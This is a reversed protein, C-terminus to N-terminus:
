PPPRWARVQAVPGEGGSGGAARGQFRPWGLGTRGSWSFFVGDRESRGTRTLGPFLGGARPYRGRGPFPGTGGREKPRGQGGRVRSRGLQGGVAPGGIGSVKSARVYGRSGPFLGRGATSAPYYSTKGGQGRALRVGRVAELRFVVRGNFAYPPCIIEQGLDDGVVPGAGQVERGDM